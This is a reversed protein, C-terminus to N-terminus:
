YIQAHVIHCVVHLSLSISTPSVNLLSFLIPSCCLFLDPYISSVEVGTSSSNEKPYRLPFLLIYISPYAFAQEPVYIKISMYYSSVKKKLVCNVVIHQKKQKQILTILRNITVSIMAFSITM